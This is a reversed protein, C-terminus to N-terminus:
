TYIGTANMTDTIARDLNTGLSTFAVSNNYSRIYQQFHATRDTWVVKGNTNVRTDSLLVRIPEPADNAIPLEIAGASCCMSYKPNERTSKRLAEEKWHLAHYHPCSIILLFIAFTSLPLVRFGHTGFFSCCEHFSKPASVRTFTTWCIIPQPPPPPPLPVAHAVPRRRRRQPLDM